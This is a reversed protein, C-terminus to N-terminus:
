HYKKNKRTKLIVKDESDLNTPRRPMSRKEEIFQNVFNSLDDEDIQTIDIESYAKTDSLSKFIRAQLNAIDEETWDDSQIEGVRFHESDESEDDDDDYRGGKMPSTISFVPAAPKKICVCNPGCNHDPRNGHVAYSVVQKKGENDMKVLDVYSLNESLHSIPEDYAMKPIEVSPAAYQHEHYGRLVTENFAQNAARQNQGTNFTNGM